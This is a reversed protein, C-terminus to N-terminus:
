IVSVDNLKLGWDHGRQKTKAGSLACKTLNHDLIWMRYHWSQEINTWIWKQYLGGQGFNSWNWKASHWSQLHHDLDAKPYHFTLRSLALKPSRACMRELTQGFGGKSLSPYASITGVQAITGVNRDCTQDFKHNLSWARNVKSDPWSQWGIWMWRHM